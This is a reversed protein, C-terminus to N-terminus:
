RALDLLEVTVSAVDGVKLSETERVTREVQLVYGKEADSFISTEWTSGGITVRARLSAARRGLEAALARIEASGDVPLSIFMWTDTRKADWLWLEAEFAIKVPENPLRLPLSTM